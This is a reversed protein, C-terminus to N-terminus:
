ASCIVASWSCSWSTQSPSANVIQYAPNKLVVLGDGLWVLHDRSLRDDVVSTDAYLEVDAVPRRYARGVLQGAVLRLRRGDEPGGVVQLDRVPGGGPRAHNETVTVWPDSTPVPVHHILLALLERALDCLTRWVSSADAGAEVHAGMAVLRRTPRFDRRGVPRLAALRLGIEDAYRRLYDGESELGEPPAAALALLMHEVGVFGHDRGLAAARAVWQAVAPSCEPWSPIAFAGPARLDLATGMNSVFLRFVHWRADAAPIAVAAVARRGALVAEVTTRERALAGSVGHVFARAAGTAVWDPAAVVGLAGARLLREGLEDHPRPSPAGGYCVLLGVLATRPLWEGLTRVVTAGGVPTDGLIGTADALREGHGIVWLFVPGRGVPPGAEVRQPAGLEGESSAEFVAEAVEDVDDNDPEVVWAGVAWPGPEPAKRSPAGVLRVVPVRREGEIPGERASAAILEWPLARARAGHAEVILVAGDRRADALLEWWRAHVAASAAVVVSLARGARDEAACVEADRGPRILVPLDGADLHRAVEACLTEVEAPGLRGVARAEVPLGLEVRWAGDSEEEIRLHIRVVM